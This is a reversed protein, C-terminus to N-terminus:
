GAINEKPLGDALDGLSKWSHNISATLPLLKSPFVQEMIKKVEPLLDFESRHFYFDLEDHITLIMRSQANNRKFFAEIEVMSKKMISAGGGQIIRNPMGYAFEPNPCWYRVGAWNHVYGRREATATVSDIFKKVKPLRSFYLKKLEKAEELSVKLAKALKANGMGYLLGFNIAKAARRSVGMLDATAQHVDMGNKVPEILNMEGAYELMMRYEQQDYDISIICTDNDPPLIARRIPYQEDPDEDDNTLNQFNPEASSFRLTATGGSKFSPHIIGNKDTFFIFNAFFDCRSKANRIAMVAKAAPSEFYQLIDSKFSPNGKETFQWLDREDSFVEEFLKPSAKYEKGTIGRFEEALRVQEDRYFQLGRESYDLDIKVGQKEMSFIVPTLKREVQMADWPSPSDPLLRGIEVIRKVQKLGVHFTIFADQCAYQFMIDDPVQDFHLKEYAEKKGKMPVLTKLKHEKVYLEVTKDKAFGAREACSALSYPESGFHDNYEVRAGVGCDHIVGEPIIGFTESLSHLDFTANFLYWVTHPNRFLVRLSPPFVGDRTNWYYTDKGDSVVIAFVRDGHYPLLGTTESDLSLAKCEFLRRCVAEDTIDKNVYLNAM